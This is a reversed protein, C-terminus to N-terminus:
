NKNRKMLTGDYEHYGNEGAEANMLSWVTEDKKAKDHKKQREALWNEYDTKEESSLNGGPLARSEKMQGVNEDHIDNVRDGLMHEPAFSSIDGGCGAGACVTEALGLGTDRVEYDMGRRKLYSILSNFRESGPYYVSSIAGGEDRYRHVKGDVLVEVSRKIDGRRMEAMAQRYINEFLEM